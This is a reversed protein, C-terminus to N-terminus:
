INLIFKDQKKYFSYVGIAITLVSFIAAYNLAFMDLPEGYIANRFNVIIAYVPNLKFIWMKMSNTDKVMSEVSYFIASTYMIFTLAVSWLYELDRFFVSFTSLLMGVGVSLLLVLILPFIINILYKTPYVKLCIAVVVLDILSILFIVYNALISSIPYIYKPVYVKKIMSSNSRISRTSAKTAASFFSYILRGSLVYIPFDQERGRMETFVVTLVIMTLLPELLTWFMGLFSNRYKLKIEKKILQELLFSYKKFNNIYQKM